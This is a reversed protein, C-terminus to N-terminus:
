KFQENKVITFAQCGLENYRTNVLEKNYQVRCGVWPDNFYYNHEDYGVLLLCHENSIWQFQEETGEITWKYEDYTYTDSMCISGWIMVPINNNIFRKCIEQLSVGNMSITSYDKLQKKKLIDCTLINIAGNYCGFGEETTPDGIFVKNPDGGYLGTDTAVVNKYQLNEIIEEPTIEIGSSNLLMGLSILECGTPYMEQSIYTCDLIKSTDEIETESIDDITFVKETTTTCLTKITASYVSCTSTTQTLTEINAEAPSVTYPQYDLDSNRVSCGTLLLGISILSLVDLLKTM